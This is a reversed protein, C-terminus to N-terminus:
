EFNQKGPPKREKLKVGQNAGKQGDGNQLSSTSNSENHDMDFIGDLELEPLGL